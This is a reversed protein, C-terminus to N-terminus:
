DKGLNNVALQAANIKKGDTSYDLRNESQNIYFIFFLGIHLLIALALAALWKERFKFM